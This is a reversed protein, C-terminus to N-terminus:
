TNNLEKWASDAMEDFIPQIAPNIYDRGRVYGGNRTGHGYQLIIAINVGNNEHRNIWNITVGGNSRVIEYDWANATEGSDVPTSAKLAAVGRRGYRDFTGLKAINLCKELFSDTKSWDGTQKFTVM